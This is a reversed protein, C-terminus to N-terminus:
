LRPILATEAKPGQTPVEGQHDVDAGRGGLLGAADVLDRPQVQTAQAPHRRRKLFPRPHATGKTVGHPLSAEITLFFRMTSKRVARPSADRSGANASISEDGSLGIDSTAIRSM